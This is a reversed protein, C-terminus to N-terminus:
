HLEPWADDLVWKGNACQVMSKNKETWWNVVIRYEDKLFDGHKNVLSFDRDVVLHDFKKNVGKTGALDHLYLELEHVSFYPFEIPKIYQSNTVDIQLVEGVDSYLIPPPLNPVLDHLETVRLLRLGGTTRLDSFVSAFGGDGVRPSAYAFATLLFPPKNSQSNLKNYAMDVANLTALAAGMSHGAVSISMEEEQYQSM